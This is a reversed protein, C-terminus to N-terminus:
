RARAAVRAEMPAARYEPVLKCEGGFRPQVAKCRKLLGKPTPKEGRDIWALLADMAAPYEADHLYSHEASDSYTQVLWQANGAQRMTDAFVSDMEVFATADHIGRLSLVPKSIKGQPDTDAALTAVAQPDAAYRAAKANLADQGTAATYVVGINGFPNKGGTRKQVIDQFHWTAWNLHGILSREPIRAQRTLTDLAQQQAPTRQAAPLNVGTCDNVRQALDARTLKSDPPLGMWVPYPAEDPKPHTGCVAQYVVRLDLRFDYSRTGGALVGSTLLVGDMSNPYMEAGIAAVSAGWSQGHLVTRRPTAVEKNFLLRLRETDQAAARVEVGGQRFTSGAWAHGAKVMISWRQLDAASREARPQGLEPGGHAHMVLVGTWQAPMAIWWFAGAEDKGSLCQTGEPLGTPCIARARHASLDPTPPAAPPTTTACGGLGAVLAVLGWSRRHFSQM